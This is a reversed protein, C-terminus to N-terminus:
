QIEIKRARNAQRPVVITLIGGTLKATVNDQDIPSPFKFTRQFFGTSRETAWYGTEPKTKAQTQEANRVVHKGKSTSVAPSSSTDTLSASIGGSAKDVDDEVTPQFLSMPRERASAADGTSTTSTSANATVAAATSTSNKSIRGKVLLTRHDTFEIDVAKKDSMGPLEGELIYSQPTEVIDFNPVFSNVPAAHGSHQNYRKHHYPSIDALGAGFLSLLAGPDVYPNRYTSTVPRFYYPM